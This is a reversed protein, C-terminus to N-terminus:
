LSDSESRPSSYDRPLYIVKYHIIPTISIYLHKNNYIYIKARTFENDTSIHINSLKFRRPLCGM